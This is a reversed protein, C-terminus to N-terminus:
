SAREFLPAFKDIAERYMRKAEIWEHRAGAASREARQAAELAPIFKEDAALQLGAATLRAETAYQEARQLTAYAQAVASRAATINPHTM